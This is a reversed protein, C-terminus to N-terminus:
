LKVFMYWIVRDQIRLTAVTVNDDLAISGVVETEFAHLTLREAVEAASLSLDPLFEKLWNYSLLM